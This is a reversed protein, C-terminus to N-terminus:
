GRTDSSDSDSETESDELSEKLTMMKQLTINFNFFTYIAILSGMFFPILFTFRISFYTVVLAGIAAIITRIPRGITLVLANKFLQLFKMHFHSLLSFFHLLSIGLIVRLVVFIITVAGFNDSRNFYEIDVYIIFFLLMYLIGGLMAQVFNQKYNVFFTKFLPVDVDGLVWKRAVSFMGATAPFITFPAVIMLLTNLTQRMNDVVDPEYIGSVNIRFWMLIWFPIAVLLWFVNTVSLRMVWESLKYFGGMMGRMEM